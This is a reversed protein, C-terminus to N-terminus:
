QIVCTKGHTQIRPLLRSLGSGDLPKCVAGTIKAAMYRPSGISHDIAEMLCDLRCAHRFDLM